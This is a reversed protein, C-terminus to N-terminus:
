PSSLIDRVVFLSFALILLVFLEGVLVAQRFRRVKMVLTSSDKVLLFSAVFAAPILIVSADKATLGHTYDKKIKVEGRHTDRMFISYKDPSGHSNPTEVVGRLGLLFVGFATIAMALYLFFSISRALRLDCRIWMREPRSLSSHRLYLEFTELEEDIEEDIEVDGMAGSAVKLPKCDHLRVSTDAVRVSVHNTEADSFSVMKWATKGLFEGIPFAKASKYKQGKREFHISRQEKVNIIFSADDPISCKAFAMWRYGYAAYSDLLKRACCREGVGRNEDELADRAEVLLSKLSSLLLTIKARSLEERDPQCRRAKEWENVFYPLALLPNQTGSLHEEPARGKVIERIEGCIDIWRDYLGHQLAPLLLNNQSLHKRVARRERAHENLDPIWPYRRWIKDYKDSPFYFLAALFEVLHPNIERGMAAGLYQLYCAQIRASDDLRVRYFTEGGVTIHLDLLPIKPLETIPLILEVKGRGRGKSGEQKKLEELNEALGPIRWEPSGPTSAVENFPKIHIERERESWMAKSFVVREIARMRWAPLNDLLQLTVLNSRTPPQETFLNM